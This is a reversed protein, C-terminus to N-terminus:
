RRRRDRKYDWGPDFDVTGFSEIVKLLERRRIYERLAVNVTERKSAHHGLRKARELLDDDIPLKTPM